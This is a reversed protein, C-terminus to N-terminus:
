PERQLWYLLPARRRGVLMRGRRRCMLLRVVVDLDVTKLLPM